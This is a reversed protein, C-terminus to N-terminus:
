EKANIVARNITHAGRTAVVNSLVVFLAQRVLQM